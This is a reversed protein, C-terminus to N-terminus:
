APWRSSIARPSRAGAGGGQRRQRHCPRRLELPPQHRDEVRVAATAPGAAPHRQDGEKGRREHEQGSAVSCRPARADAVAARYELRGGGIRRGSTRGCPHRDGTAHEIWRALRHGIRCHHDDHADFYALRGNNSRIALPAIVAWSPRQSPEPWNRMSSGRVVDARCYPSVTVAIAGPYPM